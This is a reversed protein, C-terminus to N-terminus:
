FCRIDDLCFHTEVRWTGFVLGILPNQRCKPSFSVARAGAAEFAPRRVVCAQYRFVVSSRAPGDRFQEDERHKPAAAARSRPSGECQPGNRAIFAGYLKDTSTWFVFSTRCGQESSHSRWCREALSMRRIDLCNLASTLCTVVGHNADGDERGLVRSTEHEERTTGFGATSCDSVGFTAM